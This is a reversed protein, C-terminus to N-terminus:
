AARKVTPGVCMILAPVAILAALLVYVLKNKQTLM